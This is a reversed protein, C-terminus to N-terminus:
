TFALNVGDISPNPVLLLIFTGLLAMGGYIHFHTDKIRDSPRSVFHDYRLTQKGLEKLIM